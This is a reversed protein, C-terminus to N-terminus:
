RTGPLRSEILDAEAPHPQGAATGATAAASSASAAVAAAAPNGASSRITNRGAQKAEYLASDAAALLEGRLVFSGATIAVAAIAGTAGSCAIM